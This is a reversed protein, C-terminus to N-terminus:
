YAPLAPADVHHAHHRACEAERGRVVRRHALKGRRETVVTCTGESGARDYHIVVWDHTRGLQHALATNSFLASFSWGDRDDHLVPLWADGHPNFRRPAIRHLAGAAAKQRYLEDIALLTAVSPAESAPAPRLDERAPTIGRRAFRAALVDQVARVRKAGFGELRGLRGDHAARELAELTDIGLQHHIRESLEEGIGPLDTFPDVAATEGELRGLLRSGGTGLIEIAVSALAHGIHPLAELGSRGEVRYIEALERPEERIASGGLRWARVRHPSAGQKELLEAVQEFIRAIGENTPAPTNL